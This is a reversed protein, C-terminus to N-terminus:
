GLLPAEHEVVKEMPLIVAPPSGETACLLVARVPSWFPSIEEGYASSSRARLHPVEGSSPRANTREALSTQTTGM